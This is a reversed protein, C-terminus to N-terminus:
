PWRHGSFVWGQAVRGGDLTEDGRAALVAYDTKSGKVPGAIANPLRNRMDRLAHAM